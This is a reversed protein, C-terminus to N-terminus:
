LFPNIVTVSAYVQGHNLYESYVTNCGLREAAAIIAGDWYSTQYRISYEIGSRVIKEDVIQCPKKALYNVWQLAKEPSLPRPGKRISNVYFEALVQSSVGFDETLAEIARLHKEEAESKGGAAYM